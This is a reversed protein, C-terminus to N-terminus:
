GSCREKSPLLAPPVKTYAKGKHVISVIRMHTRQTPPKNARQWPIDSEVFCTLADRMTVLTVTTKLSPDCGNTDLAVWAQNTKDVVISTIPVNFKEGLRARGVSTGLM